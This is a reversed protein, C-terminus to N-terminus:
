ETERSHSTFSGAPELTGASVWKPYALRHRMESTRMMDNLSGLYPDRWTTSTSARARMFRPM